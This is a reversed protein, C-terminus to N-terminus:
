EVTLIYDAHRYGCEATAHKVVSDQGKALAEAKRESYFVTYEKFKNSESRITVHGTESRLLVADMFERVTTNEKVKVHHPTTWNGSDVGAPALEFVTGMASAGIAAIEVLRINSEDTNGYKAAQKLVDEQTGKYIGLYGELNETDVWIDDDLPDAEETDISCVQADRIASSIIVAVYKRMDKGM